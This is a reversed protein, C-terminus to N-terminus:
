GGTVRKLRAEDYKPRGHLNKHRAVEGDVEYTKGEYLWRDDETIDSNPGLIVSPSTIVTQESSINETSGGPDFSCALVLTAPSTWDIRNPRGQTGAVVTGRLRTGSDRLRM